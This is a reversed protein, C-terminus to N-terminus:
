ACSDFASLEIMWLGSHLGNAALAIRQNDPSLWWVGDGVTVRLILYLALVLAYWAAVIILAARIPKGISKLRM